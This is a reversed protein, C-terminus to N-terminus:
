RLCCGDIMYHTQKECIYNKLDTFVVLIAIEQLCNHLLNHGVQMPQTIVDIPVITKQVYGLYLDNYVTHFNDASV